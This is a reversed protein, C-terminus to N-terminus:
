LLTSNDHCKDLSSGKSIYMYTTRTCIQNKIVAAGTGHNINGIELFCFPCHKLTILHDVFPSSEKHVDVFEEAVRGDVEQRRIMRHVVDLASNWGSTFLEEEMSSKIFNVYHNKQRILVIVTEMSWQTICGDLDGRKPNILAVLLRSKKWLKMPLTYGYSKCGM